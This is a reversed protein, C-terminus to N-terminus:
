PKRPLANVVNRAQAFRSPSEILKGQLREADKTFAPLVSWFEGTACNRFEAPGVFKSSIIM